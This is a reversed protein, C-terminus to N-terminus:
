STANQLGKDWVKAVDSWYRGEAPQSPIPNKLAKIAQKIFERQQTVDTYIKDGPVITANPATEMLAAVGTHVQHMGAEATKLATICHIETFQTPYLWVAIQKMQKALEEHSVRGHETVGQDKLDSLRRIMGWKWKQGIPDSAFMIDFTTWGYYIDLTADPVEKRIEPWFALLCELGRDYSSFFGASHKRRTM